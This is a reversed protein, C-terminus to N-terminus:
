RDQPELKRISGRLHFDAHLAWSTGDERFSVV